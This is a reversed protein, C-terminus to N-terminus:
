IYGSRTEFKLPTAFSEAYTLIVRSFEELKECFTKYVCM